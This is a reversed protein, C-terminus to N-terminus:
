RRRAMGIQGTLPLGKQMLSKRGAFGLRGYFGRTETTAGGLYIARAGLQLAEKEITEM